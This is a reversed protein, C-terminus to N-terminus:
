STLHGLTNTLHIKVAAVAAEVDGAQCASLIQRHENIANSSYVDMPSAAYLFQTVQNRLTRILDLLRPRGTPTYLLEHFAHDLQGFTQGDEALAMKQLLMDAELLVIPTLVPVARRIADCELLIRIDCIERIEDDTLRNVFAGRGPYVVLLGEAELQRFAERVPMRSVSYEAAIKEQRIQEGAPLSGSTIASRLGTIVKEASTLHLDM